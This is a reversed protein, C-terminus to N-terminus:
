SAGAIGLADTILKLVNWQDSCAPGTSFDDFVETDANQYGRNLRSSHPLAITSYTGDGLIVECLYSDSIFQYDKLSGVSTNTLEYSIRGGSIPFPVRAISSNESVPIDICPWPSDNYGSAKTDNKIQYGSNLTPPYALNVNTTSFLWAHLTPLFALFFILPSITHMKAM